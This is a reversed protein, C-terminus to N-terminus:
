RRLIFKVSTFKYCLYLIILEVIYGITIKNIYFSDEMAQLLVVYLLSAYVLVSYIHHMGSTKTRKVKGYFINMFLSLFSPFIIVGAWGADNYYRRLATYVNGLYVNTSTYRFELQKRVVTSVLGMKRLGTILGPFIEGFAISQTASKGNKVYLDLLEISGGIYSTIYSLPNLSSVRGVLEKSYYFALMSIIFIIVIKRTFKASIHINWGINNHILYYTIFILYVLLGIIDIRNGKLFSMIIFLIVPILYSLNKITKKIVTGKEILINNIFIYSYIYGFAYVVKTMQNVVSNIQAEDSTGYSIVRKYAVMPGFKQWYSEAYQALRLIEKYYLFFTVLCFIIVACTKWLPIHIEYLKNQVSKAKGRTINKYALGTFSFSILGLIIISVTKSSLDIGWEKVNMLAAIIALMFGISFLNEPMLIDRDSLFYTVLFLIIDIVLLLILQIM